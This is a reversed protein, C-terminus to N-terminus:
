TRDGSSASCAARIDNCAAYMDDMLSMMYAVDRRHEQRIVAIEEDRRRLLFVLQDRTMSGYSSHVADTTAATSPGDVKMAFAKVSLSVSDCRSKSAIIHSVKEDYTGPSTDLDVTSRLIVVTHDGLTGRLQQRPSWLMENKSEYYPIYIDPTPDLPVTALLTGVGSGLGTCSLPAVRPGVVTDMDPAVGACSLPPVPPGVVTDMDPSVGACTLPAVRPGVVTDMDPSVGACTLPAVRPGVVTDMDPSVGACTLPAVRPGVVTDM